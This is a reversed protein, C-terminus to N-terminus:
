EFTKIDIKNGFHRKKRRFKLMFSSVLTEFFLMKRYKKKKRKKEQSGKPSWVNVEAKLPMKEKRRAETAFVTAVQQSLVM